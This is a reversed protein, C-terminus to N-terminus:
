QFLGFITDILEQVMPAYKESIDPLLNLYNIILTLLAFAEAITLKQKKPKIDAGEANLESCLALLKEVTQAPLIRNDKRIREVLEKPPLRLDDWKFHSLEEYSFKEADKGKM